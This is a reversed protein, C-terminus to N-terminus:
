RKILALDTRKHTIAFRSIHTFWSMKKFAASDYKLPMMIQNIFRYVCEYTFHVLGGRKQVSTEGMRLISKLDMKSCGWKIQISKFQVGIKWADYAEMVTDLDFCNKWEKKRNRKQQIFLKTHRRGLTSGFIDISANCLCLIKWEHQNFHAYFIHYIYINLLRVLRTFFLKRKKKIQLTITHAIHTYIRNIQVFVSVCFLTPSSSKRCLSM